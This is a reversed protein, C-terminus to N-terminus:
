GVIRRGVSRRGVSRGAVELARQAHQDVLVRWADLEHLVEVALELRGVGAHRDVHRDHVGVVDGGDVLGTQRRLVDVDGRDAHGAEGVRHLRVHGIGVRGVPLLQDLGPQDHVEAVLREDLVVVLGRDLRSSM